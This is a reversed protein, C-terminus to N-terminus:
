PLYSALAHKRSCSGWRYHIDEERGVRPYARPTQTHLSLPPLLLAAGKKGKGKAQTQGGTPRPAKNVRKSKWQERENYWGGKVEKKRCVVPVFGCLCVVVKYGGRPMNKEQEGEGGERQHRAVALTVGWLRVCTM